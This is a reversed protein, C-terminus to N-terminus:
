LYFGFYSYFDFFDTLTFSKIGRIQMYMGLGTFFEERLEEVIRGLIKIEPHREM